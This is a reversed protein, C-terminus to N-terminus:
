QPDTTEKQILGDWPVGSRIHLDRQPFPIEINRAAFEDWIMYRLESSIPKVLVPDIWVALQFDLSSAGFDEFFVAPAPQEQVKPHRQAVSLLAEKIEQPNSSYSVGVPILWRVLNHTKTYSKVSSTLINENPVIIEVNDQTHVLTSRIGLKDVIVRENDIEMVDGPRISQEFLLIIGSIFNALVERLGFGIGVSLGGTIAAVTTTDLGLAGVAVMVGIIVLLYSALTLGAELVGPNVKTFRTISHYLIYNLGWVGDIWFYLGATAIFFAGLTIPSQFITALVINGLAELDTLQGLVRLLVLVGFLPGLFRNQFRRVSENPFIVYLSGLILRYFLWLWLISVFVLLWGVVQGQAALIPAIIFTLVLALIPFISLRLAPRWDFREQEPPPYRRWIQEVAVRDAIFGIVLILGITILQFQVSPRALFIQIQSLLSSVFEPAPPQNDPM